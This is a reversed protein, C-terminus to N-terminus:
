RRVAVIACLDVADRGADFRKTLTHRLRSSVAIVSSPSAQEPFLAYRCQRPM